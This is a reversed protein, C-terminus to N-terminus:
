RSTTQYRRALRRRAVTGMPYMWPPITAICTAGSHERLRKWTLTSTSIFALILHPTKSTTVQIKHKVSSLYQSSSDDFCILVSHPWPTRQWVSSSTDDLGCTWDSPTTSCINFDATFISSHLHPPHQFIGTTFTLASQLAEGANHDLWSTSPLSNESYPRYKAFAPCTM